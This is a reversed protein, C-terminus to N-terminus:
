AARDQSRDQELVRDAPLRDRADAEKGGPKQARAGPQKPSQSRGSSVQLRVCLLIFAVSVIAWPILVILDIDTM